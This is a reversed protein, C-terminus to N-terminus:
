AAVVGIVEATLAIVVGPVPLGVVTRLLLVMPVVSPVLMITM